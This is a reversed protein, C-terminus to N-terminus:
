TNKPVSLRSRHLNRVSAFGNGGTPHADIPLESIYNDISDGKLHESRAHPTMRVVHAVGIVHRWVVWRDACDADCFWHEVPGDKVCFMNKKVDHKHCWRCHMSWNCVTRMPEHAERIFM